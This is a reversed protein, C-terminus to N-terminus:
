ILAPNRREINSRLTEANWDLIISASAGNIGLTEYTVGTSKEAVWGFLRGAAPLLVARVRQRRSGRVCSRASQTRVHQHRGFRLGRRGRPGGPRRHALRRDLRLARGGPPIRELTPWRLFLRQRRRRIKGPLPHATRRDM